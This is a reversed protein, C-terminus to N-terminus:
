IEISEGLPFIVNEIHLGIDRMPRIEGFHEIRALLFPVIYRVRISDASAQEVRGKRVKPLIGLLFLTVFLDIDVHIM